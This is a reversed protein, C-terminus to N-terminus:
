LEECSEYIIEDPKFDRKRQWITGLDSTSYLYAGDSKQIFCPPITIKDTDESVNIVKAGQDLVLMNQKELYDIMEPFEKYSDSEGYWYDFSVDLYDYIKKIDPISIDCIKKWLIQYKQNGEQLEKTIQACKKKVEEDEKCLASIKPYTVNLYELDIKIDNVDVSPFDNLIGYIVQGMQAGIDGLHVDAITNNGQFKLINNIAQGIIAPRLHGVHLPKAVNPGGYDLVITKNDKTIGYKEKEILDRLSDCIYKDSVTINIFGPNSLTVEKFYSNFDELENIKDVVEKGIEMPAKHYEKALKFLDDCQYDANNSKSIKCDIEYGLEKFVKNIETM